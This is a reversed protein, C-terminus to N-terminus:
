GRSTHCFVHLCMCCAASGMDIYIYIHIYIYIYIDRQKYTCWAARVGGGRLVAVLPCRLVGLALKGSLGFPDGLTGWPDGLLVRGFRLGNRGL